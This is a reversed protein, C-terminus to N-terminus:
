FSRIVKMNMFAGISPSILEIGNPCRIKVGSIDTTGKLLAWVIQAVGVRFWDTGAFGFVNSLIKLRLKIITFVMM